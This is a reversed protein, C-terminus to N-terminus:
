GALEIHFGANMTAAVFDWPVTSPTMGAVILPPKGILRSLKTNVILGGDPTRSLTPRFKLEWNMAFKVADNGSCDFLEDKYGFDSHSNGFAGALIVRVGTGEKNKHTLVGIGSTGGPGFDLIHTAGPFKTALEWNVERCVILEVIEPLLNCDSERRMDKGTYTNYVPIRLMDRRFSDLHKVDDLITQLAGKLYVSHFPVTIPLFRSFFKIKRESFPVRTQEIGTGAKVKRLSTNLGYLSQPPGAVVFNRPGNVLSVYLKRDNPLHKNTANIHGVLESEPLDRVSLMPTPIGEMNDVSDQLVLPRLSTKPYVQQSRCGIWFLITLADMSLREFTEWDTAIAIVVASIIGQSHGTVGKLHGRLSEPTLGLLRATILYSCLQVLGIMPLSVPASTLYDQDPLSSEDRLWGIVDLGKSYLRSANGSASLLKLTDSCRTLFPEIIGNYVHFLEKLESIYDEVGQGGFVAFVNIETPSTKSFLSIPVEGNNEALIPAAAYYQKIIEIKREIPIELMAVVKHINNGALFRDEFEAALIQILQVVNEREHPHCSNLSNFVASQFRSFLELNSTISSEGDDLLSRHFHDVLNSAFYHLESPILISHEFDDLKLTLPRSSLPQKSNGTM